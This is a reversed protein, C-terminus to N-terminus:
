LPESLLGSDTLSIVKVKLRFGRKLSDAKIFVKMYNSSIGKYIGHTETKNEVIVDLINGLKNNIFANRKKTSIDL